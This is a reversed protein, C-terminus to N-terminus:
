DPSFLHLKCHHVFSASFSIGEEFWFCTYIVIFNNLSPCHLRCSDDHDIGPEVLDYKTRTMAIYM